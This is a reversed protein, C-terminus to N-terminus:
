SLIWFVFVVSIIVNAKCIWFSPFNFLALIMQSINCIGPCFTSRWWSDFEISQPNSCGFLLIIQHLFLLDDVQEVLWHSTYGACITWKKILRFCRRVWKRASVFLKARIEFCLRIFVFHPYLIEIQTLYNTCAIKGFNVFRKIFFSQFPDYEFHNLFFIHCGHFM